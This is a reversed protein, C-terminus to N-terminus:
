YAEFYLDTFYWNRINLIKHKEQEFQPSFSILINRKDYRQLFFLDKMIRSICFNEKFDYMYNVRLLDCEYKRAEEVIKIIVDKFIVWYDKMFLYDVLCAEKFGNPNTFVHLVVYGVTQSDYEVTFKRYEKGAFRWNLHKHNREIAICDFSRAFEETFKDTSENFRTIPMLGIKKGRKLFTKMFFLFKLVMTFLCSSVDTVIRNKLRESLLHALYRRNLILVFIRFEHEVTEYGSDLHSKLALESPNTCIIQIGEKMAGDLTHSVLRTSLGREIKQGKKMLSRIYSLDFIEGEGKGGLFRKGFAIFHMRIVSYHGILRGGSSEEILSVVAQGDPNDLYLHKWDYRSNINKYFGSLLRVIKTDDGQDVSRARIVTKM